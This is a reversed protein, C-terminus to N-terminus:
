ERSLWEDDFIHPPSHVGARELLEAIEGCVGGVVVLVGFRGSVRTLALKPLDFTQAELKGM